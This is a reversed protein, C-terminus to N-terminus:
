RNTRTLLTVFIPVGVLATVVGIPLEAPAAVIRALTDGVLLFAAGGLLSAPLLLRHETGWLLRLAHPVVLGVFGIVGASAVAVAVLLSAVIYATLKVREISVGLFAATEEGVALVNLPRALACLVLAAPVFYALMLVCAQWTAGSLNGMMWFIASRFSETSSFTLMLMITANLFAGVAVGALLLVRTDLRGVGAAIRFVLAIAVLAGTFAAIPLSWTEAALGLTLAAVAGVAAGSSVGLVYPDALPNRLLAQFVTGGLALSAGVLATLVARPLRLDVVITRTMQDSAGTLAGLVGSIPIQAAGLAVSAFFVLLFLACM